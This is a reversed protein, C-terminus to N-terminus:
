GKRQDAAAQPPPAPHHPKEPAPMTWGIPHRCCDLRRPLSSSACAPKRAPRSAHANAAPNGGGALVLAALLAPEIMAFTM